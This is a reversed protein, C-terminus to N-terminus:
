TLCGRRIGPVSLLLRVPAFGLSHFLPWPTVRAVGEEKRSRGVEGEKGGSDFLPFFFSVFVVSSAASGGRGFSVLVDPFEAVAFLSFQASEYLQSARIRVAAALPLLLLLTVGHTACFFFLLVAAFCFVASAHSM